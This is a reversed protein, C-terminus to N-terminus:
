QHFKFRAAITVKKPELHGKLIYTLQKLSKRSSKKSASSNRLLGYNEQGIINLFVPVQKKAKIGNGEFYLQMRELYVVISENDPDFLEMRGVTSAAM